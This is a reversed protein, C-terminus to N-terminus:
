YQTRFSGVNEDPKSMHPPLPNFTDTRCNGDPFLDITRDTRNIILTHAGLGRYCQRPALNRVNEIEGNKNEMIVVGVVASASTANVFSLGLVGATVALAARSSLRTRM